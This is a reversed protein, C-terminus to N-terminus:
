KTIGELTVQEGSLKGSAANLQDQSSFAAINGGMPSRLQTSKMLFAQGSEILDHPENFDVFYTNKIEKNDITNAKMFGTLCHIDDFIYVKGKKTVIEAGFRNDAISMRCSSCVDVGIKIKQPGVTCSTLSLVVIMFIAAITSILNKM